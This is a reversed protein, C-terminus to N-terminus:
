TSEDVGEPDNSPIGLIKKERLDFRLLEGKQCSPETEGVNGPSGADLPKSLLDFFLHSQGMM